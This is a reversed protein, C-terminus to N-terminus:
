RAAVGRDFGNRGWLTDIIIICSVPKKTLLFIDVNARCERSMGFIGGIDSRMDSYRLTTKRKM